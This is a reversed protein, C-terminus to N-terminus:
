QQAGQQHAGSQPFPWAVGLGAALGALDRLTTGTLRVGESEARELRATELDGPALVRDVGAAPASARVHRAIRTARSRVGAADGFLGADVVLYLNGVTVDADRHDARGSPATFGSLTVDQSLNAGTLGSALMEVMLSLASGKHGGSPLVGGALAEAPDTTPRGEGDVAWGEPLRAGDDRAVKIRGRSSVSQAMDVVLEPGGHVGPAAFSLPSNGIRPGRGGFPVVSPSTTSMALALFGRAAALRTFFAAAGFHAVRTVGALAVGTSRAKDMAHEVARVGVPVGFGADADVLLGGPTEALVKEEPAPNVQGSRLQAVYPTLRTVGHTHVGTADAEVLSRALLGADVPRMGAAALIDEALGLLGDMPLPSAATDTM